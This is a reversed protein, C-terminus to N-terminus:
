IKLMIVLHYNRGPMPRYLISHYAENFLNYIRMEASLELQKIHVWTILAERPLDNLAELLEEEEIKDALRAM